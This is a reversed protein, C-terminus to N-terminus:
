SASLKPTTPSGLSNTWMKSNAPIKEALLDCLLVQSVLAIPTLGM